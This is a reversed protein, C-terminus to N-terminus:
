FEETKTGFLNYMSYSKQMQNKRANEMHKMYEERSVFKGRIRPKSGAVFSRGLFNRNLPHAMRWKMIKKKYQLIKELREEKSYIGPVKKGGPSEANDEDDKEEIM